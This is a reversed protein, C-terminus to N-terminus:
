FIFMLPVYDCEGAREDCNRKFPISIVLSLTFIKLNPDALQEIATRSLDVLTFARLPGRSENSEIVAACSFRRHLCRQSMKLTNWHLSIESYRIFNWWWCSEMISVNWQVSCLMMSSYRASSSRSCRLAGCPLQLVCFNGKLALVLILVHM